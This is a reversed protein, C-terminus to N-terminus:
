LIMAFTLPPTFIALMCAYLNSRVIRRQFGGFRRRRNGAIHRNGAHCLRKAILIARLCVGGSEPLVGHVYESRVFFLNQNPKQPEAVAMLFDSCSKPQAIGRHSAPVGPRQFLKALVKSRPRNLFRPRAQLSMFGDVKRLNM